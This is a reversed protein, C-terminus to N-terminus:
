VLNCEVQSVRTYSISFLKESYMYMFKSTKVLRPFEVLLEVLKCIM